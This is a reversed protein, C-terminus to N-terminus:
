GAEVLVQMTKIRLDERCSNCLHWSYERPHTEDAFVLTTVKKADMGGCFECRDRSVM